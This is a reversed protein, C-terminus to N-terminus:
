GASGCGAQNDQQEHTARPVELLTKPVPVLTERSDGNVNMTVRVKMPAGGDARRPRRPGLGAVAQLACQRRVASKGPSLSSKFISFREFGHRTRFRPCRFRPRSLYGRAM